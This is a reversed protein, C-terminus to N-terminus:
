RRSLLRPATFPTSSRQRSRGQDRHSAAARHHEDGHFCARPPSHLLVEKDRGAGVGTLLQQATTNMETFAPAPRHISYFKKTEVPGLEDIPEGIINMIRGLTQEGVPVKISDGTGMVKQGRTLGDTGDM